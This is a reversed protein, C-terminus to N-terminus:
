NEILIGIIKKPYKRRLEDMNKCSYFRVFGDATKAKGDVAFVELFGVGPPSIMLDIKGPESEFDTHDSLEILGQCRAKYWTRLQDLDGDAAFVIANKVREWNYSLPLAEILTEPLFTSLPETVANHIPEDWAETKWVFLGKSNIYGKAKGKTVLALGSQFGSAVDFMRPIVTEGNTDIYGYLGDREITALGGQFRGVSGDESVAAIEKGLSDLLVTRGGSHAVFVSGDSPELIQDYKGFAVIIRGDSDLLGVKGGKVARIAGDTPNSLAAYVGATIVFRGTRDILGSDRGNETAVTVYARGEEFGYSYTLSRNEIVFQGQKDVFGASQADLQEKEVSSQMFPPVKSSVFALGESFRGASYYKPKIALKGERNIFGNVGTADNIHVRAMGEHFDDYSYSEFGKIDTLGEPPNPQIAFNGSSDIFGQYTREFVRDEETTGAVSVLALGEAFANASLFQPQIVVKGEENIYGWKGEVSIPFLIPEDFALASSTTLAILTLLLQFLRHSLTNMSSHWM